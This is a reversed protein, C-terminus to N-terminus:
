AYNVGFNDSPHEPRHYTMNGWTSQPIRDFNTILNIDPASFYNIYNVMLAVEYGIARLAEIKDRYAPNLSPVVMIMRPKLDAVDELLLTEMLDTVYQQSVKPHLKVVGKDLRSAKVTEDIEAELM